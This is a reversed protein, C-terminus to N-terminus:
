EASEIVRTGALEDGWRRAQPDTLVKYCEYLIVVTIAFGILNGLFSLPLASFWSAGFMWNRKISTELNMPQGDLRVPRLKMIKKGLSRGKMFDLDLGDRVLFYGGALLVALIIGLTSFVTVFILVWFVLGAIVGDILQALFRKVHDPKDTAAAEVDSAAEPASAPESEPAADSPTHIPEEAPNPEM